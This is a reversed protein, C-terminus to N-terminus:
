GFRREHEKADVLLGVAVVGKEFALGEDDADKGFVLFLDRLLEGVGLVVLEDANIQDVGLDAEGANSAAEGDEFAADDVVVVAAVVGYHDAFYVSGGDGVAVGEDVVAAVVSLDAALCRTRLGAKLRGSRCWRRIRTPEEVTM